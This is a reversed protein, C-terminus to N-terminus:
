VGGTFEFCGMKAAASIQTQRPEPRGAYDLRPVPRVPGPNGTWSQVARQWAAVV